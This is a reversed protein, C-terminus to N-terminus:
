KVRGNEDFRQSVGFFKATMDVHDGELEIHAIGGPMIIRLRPERTLGLFRSAAAVATASTGSSATPGEGREFVRAWIVTGAYNVQAWQLDAGQKFTFAAAEQFEPLKYAIAKLPEFLRTSGLQRNLPLKVTRDLFTVCHPNGVNVLVSRAWEPAIKALPSVRYSGDTNSILQETTADVAAAGFSVRGMDLWFGAVGNVEGAQGYTATRRDASAHVMIALRRWRNLRGTDFLWQAFSTLGNGSREALSGDTNVIVVEFPSYDQFPGVVIGDITQHAEAGPRLSLAALIANVLAQGKRELFVAADACRLPLDCVQRAAGPTVIAYVNGRATYISVGDSM